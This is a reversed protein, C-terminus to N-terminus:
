KIRGYYELTIKEHSSGVIDEERYLEFAGLVERNFYKDAPYARNWKVLLLEEVRNTPVDGDEVLCYCGDPTATLDDTVTVPCTSTEFQKATYASVWLSAPSVLECLYERLVRDQTQRRKNFMMGFRDDVCIILKM